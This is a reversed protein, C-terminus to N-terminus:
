DPVDILDGGGLVKGGGKRQVDDATLGIRGDAIAVTVGTGGQIIGPVRAGAPLCVQDIGQGRAPIIGEDQVGGPIWANGVMMGFREPIGSPRIRRCSHGARSM